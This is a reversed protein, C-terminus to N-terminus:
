RNMSGLLDVGKLGTRCLSLVVATAIAQQTSIVFCVCVGDGTGVMIVFGLSGNM